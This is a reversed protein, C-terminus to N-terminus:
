IQMMHQLNVCIPKELVVITVDVGINRQPKAAKLRISMLGM